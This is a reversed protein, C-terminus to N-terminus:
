AAPPPQIVRAGEPAQGALAARVRRAVREEAADCEAHTVGKLLDIWAMALASLAQLEAARAARKGTTRQRDLIAVCAEQAAQVVGHEDRALRMRVFEEVLNVADFIVRWHADGVAGRRVAGIAEDLEVAWILRDSATLKAAGHMAMQHALPNIPRPRYASRKRM